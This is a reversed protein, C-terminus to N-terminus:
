RFAYNAAFWLVAFVASAKLTVRMSVHKDDQDAQAVVVRGLSLSLFCRGAASEFGIHLCSFWNAFLIFSCRV